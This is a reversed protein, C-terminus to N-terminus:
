LSVWYSAFNFDGSFNLDLINFFEMYLYQITSKIFGTTVGNQTRIAKQPSFGSVSIELSDKVFIM